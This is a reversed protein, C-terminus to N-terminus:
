ALPPQGPNIARQAAYFADKLQSRKRFLVGIAHFKGFPGDRIYKALFIITIYIPIPTVIAPVQTNYDEDEETVM